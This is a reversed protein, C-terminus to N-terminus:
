NEKEEVEKRKKSMGFIFFLGGVAIFVTGLTGITDKMTTSFIVGLAIIIMGMFIFKRYRELNKSM